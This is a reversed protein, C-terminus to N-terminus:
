LTELWANVTAWQQRLEHASRGGATARAFGEALEAIMARTGPRKALREAAEAPTVGWNGPDGLEVAAARKREEPPLLVAGAALKSRIQTLRSNVTPRAIGLRDMVQQYSGHPLSAETTFPIGLAALTDLIQYDGPTLTPTM